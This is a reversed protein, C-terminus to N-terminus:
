PMPTPKVPPPPVHKTVLQCGYREACLKEADRDMGPWWVKTGLREKTKVVGQHGEQALSVVRKRVAQPMVIRTGRFIVHGIFTLENRVPLYQKPASNWREEVLCRRVAQLEPDEASVREIEKIKLAAPAAHLAVMRVYEDDDQSQNSAVIKTLRSLADAINNRSSVYCVQYNYPQLRLVWREILASPKSKTSYIVKLAEHDTVLDFKPLGYVYLHFRECAWVLALAERETQSYRREVNSLTRSAYCVARREGNREQILVAGLGVPSADAIIQTHAEKDFYALVPVSAIQRKLKQFSKEQEEGWIFSEGQRAIRRLPYATTSFDPIFRASFGVLGLFSCVESPSQPQSAEVVARVKEKTPGIGHRTLLLGMFVVKTMRFTCKEANVTLGREKLRELVKILNRDHEESGQGHVVLDDAINAVGKLGAM